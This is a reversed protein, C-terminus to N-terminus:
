INFWNIEGNLKAQIVIHEILMDEKNNVPDYTTKLNNDWFLATTQWFLANLRGRYSKVIDYTTSNTERHVLKVLVKGDSITLKKLQKSYENKLMRTENKLYKRKSSRKPISDLTIKIQNIKNKIIHVYPYVKLVRRKLRNYLIRDARNKFELVEFEPLDLYVVTDGNIIEFNGDVINQSYSNINLFILIYFVFNKM